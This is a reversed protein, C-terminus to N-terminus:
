KQSLLDKLKLFRPDVENTHCECIHSKIENLNKGCYQCLGACEEKCVIKQPYTLLISEKIGETIDIFNTTPSVVLEDDFERSTAELISSVRLSYNALFKRDFPINCCDCICHTTYEISSYIVIEEENKKFTNEVNVEGYFNDKLGLQECTLNSLVVSEGIPLITINFSLQNVM